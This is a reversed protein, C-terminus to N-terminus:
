GIAVVVGAANNNFFTSNSVNMAVNNNFQALRQRWQKGTFTSDTV